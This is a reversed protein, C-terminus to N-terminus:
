EGKAREKCQMRYEQYEEYEQRYKEVDLNYNNILALEQKITYREAIYDEVKQEYTRTDETFPSLIDRVKEYEINENGDKDVTKIVNYLEFGTVFEGNIIKHLPRLEQNEGIKPRVVYRYVM